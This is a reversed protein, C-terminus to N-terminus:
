FCSPSGGPFFWLSGKTEHCTGLHAWDQQVSGRVESLWFDFDKIGTNFNQQKNAEKLKQSKEWCIFSGFFQGASYVFQLKEYAEDTEQQQINTPDKYSEDTATQLKESIWAEIEDVDRSFQQLTQSEGLKSRKEIMQAKLRRWRDLVENRRNTIDPKAYHGAGILQDAFSQLAAIKEENIAKDFDEHKKILAEVSDLSDGKDDSALFAERAAMWNEAQECDRNFLQLELCQDLMMRRQVWAKELDAREQDLAELKQQIEPSAYHGRALLHQGFQEFAQFTGARADIETRHEQLCFWTPNFLLPFVVSMKQWSRFDSLFRQLDHSNSLKEKRQDARGVLSSWATNLETCKEQIDDKAEPHSQILREATEGLSNVLNMQMYE